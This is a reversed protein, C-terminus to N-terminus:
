PAPVARMITGKEGVAIGIGFSTFFVDYLTRTNVEDKQWFSGGDGTRLIIGDDGVIIGYLADIFFVSRLTTSTGSDQHEWTVGGDTSRVIVGDTGVVYANSQSSYCVGLHLTNLRVNVRYWTEGGDTTRYIIGDRGEQGVALGNDADAFAVNYFHVEDGIDQRTWTAGADNSRLITGKTGVAVATVDDSFAIDNIKEYIWDFEEDFVISYNDGGDTTRAILARDGVVDASVVLGTDPNAFDFSRNSHPTDSSTWTQGADITRLIIRHGIVHATNEDTFVIQILDEFTVSGSRTNWSAGGDDTYMVLGREGVAMCTTADFCSVGELTATQGSLQNVWIDGDNDTRYIEGSVVTWSNLGGYSVDSFVKNGYTQLEWNAGGDITRCIRGYTQIGLEVRDITLYGVAIRRLSDAMSVSKLAVYHDNYEKKTWTEGGDTTMLIVADNNYGGVVTGNNEDIFSVGTLWTGNRTDYDIYQLDWTNGGDTTHLIYDMAAAWGRDADIFSVDYIMRSTGASQQIWSEGGDNTRLITGGWGVATGTNENKFCVDRMPSKTGSSQETWTQGGDNTRYISGREGVATGTVADIMDIGYLDYGTPFPNIWSWDVDPPLLPETVEFAESMFSFEEISGTTAMIIVNYMGPLVSSSVDALCYGDNDTAFALDYIPIIQQLWIDVTGEYCAPYWIIEVNDEGVRWVTSGTPELMEFGSVCVDFTDSFCSIGEISAEVRYDLGPVIDSPIDYELCFEIPDDEPHSIPESFITDIPTEGKYLMATVLGGPQMVYLCFPLGTRGPYWNLEDLLGFEFYKDISFADSYDYHDQDYYVCVWYDDRIEMDPPVHYTFLGDNETSAALTDVFVVPNTGNHLAISVKGALFGTNWVVRADQQNLYWCENTGPEMVEISATPKCCDGREKWHGSLLEIDLSDIVKNGNLDLFEDWATSDPTAGYAQLIMGADYLNIRNDDNLDGAFLGGDVDTADAGSIQVTDLASFLCYPSWAMVRYEGDDLGGLEYDGISDTTAMHQTDIWVIVGYSHGRGEVSIRGSISHGQPLISHSVLMSLATMIIAATIYKMSPKRM